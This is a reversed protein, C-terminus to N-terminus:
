NSNKFCCIISKRNSPRLRPAQFDFPCFPVFVVQCIPQRAVCNCFLQFLYFHVMSIMAFGRNLCYRHFCCCDMRLLVIFFIWSLIHQMHSHASIYICFILHICNTAFKRSFSLCFVVFVCVDDLYVVQMAFRILNFARRSISSTYKNNNAAASKRRLWEDLM